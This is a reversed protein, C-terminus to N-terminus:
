IVSEKWMAYMAYLQILVWAASILIAAVEADNWPDGAMIIFIFAVTSLTQIWPWLEFTLTDKLNGKLLEKVEERRAALEPDIEKRKFLNM